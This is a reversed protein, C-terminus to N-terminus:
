GIYMLNCCNCYLKHLVNDYFLYTVSLSLVHSIVISYRYKLQMCLITYCSIAITVTLPMCGAKDIIM